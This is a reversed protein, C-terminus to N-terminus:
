PGRRNGKRVTRYHYGLAASFAGLNSIIYNNLLNITAIVGQNILYSRLLNLRHRSFFIASKPVLIRRPAVSKMELEKLREVFGELATWYKVVATDYVFKFNKVTSLARKISAVDGLYGIGDEGLEYKTINQNLFKSPVFICATGMLLAETAITSNELVYIIKAENLMHLVLERSQREPGDRYIETAGHFENKDPIGVFKRYKGAYILSGFKNEQPIEKPLENLDVIPIFLVYRSEKHSQSITEAYSIVFENKNFHDPGGLAGPFNLLYRIVKSARLPNGPVTESYVVWPNRGQSFHSNAKEQNLIPTNLKPDTLPDNRLKPNSLVIWAEHGIENLSHVLYHLVKIGASNSRWPPSYVYVLLPDNNERVVVLLCYCLPKRSSKLPM